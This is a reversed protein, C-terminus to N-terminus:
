FNKTIATADRFYIARNEDYKSTGRKAVCKHVEM